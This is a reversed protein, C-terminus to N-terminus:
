KTKSRERKMEQSIAWSVGNAFGCQCAYLWALTTIYDKMDM